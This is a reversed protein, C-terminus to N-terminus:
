GGRRRRVLGGITALGLLALGASTPEPVPLTGGTTGAYVGYNLTGTLSSTSLNVFAAQMLSPMVQYTTGDAYFNLWAVSSSHFSQDTSYIHLAATAIAAEGAGAVSQLTPVDASLVLLTNPTLTFSSSNSGATASSNNGASSTSAATAGPGTGGTLSGAFLQGSSTDAGSGWSYPGIAAGPVGYHYAGASPVGGLVISSGVYGDGGGTIMVGAAIGDLPDLDIVRLQVNNLTASATAAQVSAAFLLSSAALLHRSSM